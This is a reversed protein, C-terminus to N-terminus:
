FICSDIASCGGSSASTLSPGPGAVALLVWTGFMLVVDRISVGEVAANSYEICSPGEGEGRGRGWALTAIGLCRDLVAGLCLM